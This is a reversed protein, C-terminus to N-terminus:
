ACAQMPLRVNLVFENGRSPVVRRPCPGKASMGEMLGLYTPAERLYKPYRSGSPFNRKVEEVGSPTMVEINLLQRIAPVRRRQRRRRCM